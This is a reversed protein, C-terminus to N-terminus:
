AIGGRHMQPQDHPAAVLDLGVRPQGLSIVGRRRHRVPPLRSRQKATRLTSTTTLPVFRRYAARRHGEQGAGIRGAIDVPEIDDVDGRRQEALPGTNRSHPRRPEGPVM